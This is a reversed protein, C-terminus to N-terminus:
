GAGNAGAENNRRIASDSLRTLWEPTLKRSRSEAGSRLVDGSADTPRPLFRNAVQMAYGTLNPFTANAAIALHAAVTLTVAPHGRRCAELIKAAAREAKMSILPMSNGLAFFAFEQAHRGKFKANVHSGTRMMGPAVTTVYIRDRALEARLSDSLGVLAFKSACYPALHPVAIKGGISTINVIRGGGQRRMHPIVEWILTFPAWLHVEMAQEFDERKMHELPGVEIIGACNVLVDIRGYHRLVQRVAEEIQGRERLDCPIIVCRGGYQLVDDHARRLEDVNRALLAVRGGEACIQRAMVLGLGRSGGSILCVKGAFSYRAASAKRALWSGLAVGGAALAWLHTRKM